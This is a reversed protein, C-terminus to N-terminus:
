REPEVRELQARADEPHVILGSGKLVLAGQGGGAVLGDFTETAPDYAEAYAFHQGDPSAVGNVVAAALTASSRLRPLELSSAYAEWVDGLAVHRSGAPWLPIRDLDARLRAPPFEVLLDGDAKLQRSARMALDERGPARSTKWATASAPALLWQWTEGLLERAEAASDDSLVQRLEDLRSADAALFVLMNIYIRRAGSEADADADALLEKARVLAPSDPDDDRHPHEPGLVVLRAGAQDPVEAPTTPAAHIAGFDGRMRQARLRNRIEEDVADVGRLTAVQVPPRPRRSSNAGGEPKRRGAEAGAPGPGAEAACSHLM